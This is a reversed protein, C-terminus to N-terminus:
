WSTCSGKLVTAVGLPDALAPGHSNRGVEFVKVAHTLRTLHELLPQPSNRTDLWDACLETPVIVPSRDHFGAIDHQPERTVITFSHLLDGTVKDTWIDFLSALMLPEADPATFAYRRKNRNEGTWEFWADVPFLARRRFAPGKFMAKELLTDSRANIPRIKTSALDKSWAPVLGWQSHRISPRGGTDPVILLPCSGPPVDYVDRANAYLDEPDTTYDGLRRLYTKANRYQITRGCM